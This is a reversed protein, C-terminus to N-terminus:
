HFFFNSLISSAGKIVQDSVTELLIQFGLDPQLYPFGKCKVVNPEKNHAVNEQNTEFYNTNDILNIALKKRVWMKMATVFAAVFVFLSVPM